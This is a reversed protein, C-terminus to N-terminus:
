NPTEALFQKLTTQVVAIKGKLAQADTQSKQIMDGAKGVNTASLDTELFAKLDHLNSMFPQLQREIDSLTDALEDHDKMVKSRRETSAQRLGADAMQAISTDWASFYEASTSKMEDIDSTARKQAEELNNVEKSFAEYRKKLDKAQGQSVSSLTGETKELQSVYKDVDESTKATRKGLEASEKFADGVAGSDSASVAVVFSCFVFM